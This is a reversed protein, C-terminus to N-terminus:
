GLPTEKMRGYGRHMEGERCVPLVDEDGRARNRLAYPPVVIGGLIHDQDAPLEDDIVLVELPEEENPYPFEFLEEWTCITGTGRPVKATQGEFAGCRVLISTPDHPDAQLNKGHHVTVILRTKNAEQRLKRLEDLTMPPPPVVPQNLEDDEPDHHINISRPRPAATSIPKAREDFIDLQMIRRREL